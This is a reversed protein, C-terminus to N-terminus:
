GIEQWLQNLLCLALLHIPPFVPLHPTSGAATHVLLHPVDEGCYRLPPRNPPRTYGPVQLLPARLVSNVFISPCAYISLFRARPAPPRVLPSTSGTGLGSGFLARSCACALSFIDTMSAHAHLKANSSSWVKRRCGWGVKEM